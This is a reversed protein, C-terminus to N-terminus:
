ASWTSSSIPPAHLVCPISSFHMCLTQLFDQVNLSKHSTINFHNMTFYTPHTSFPSIQSLTHILRYLCDALYLYFKYKFRILKVKQGQTWPASISLLLVSIVTEPHSKWVLHAIQPLLLHHRCLHSMTTVLFQRWARLLGMFCPCIHM